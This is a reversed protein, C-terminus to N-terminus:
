RKKSKKYKFKNKKYVDNMVVNFFYFVIEIKRRDM